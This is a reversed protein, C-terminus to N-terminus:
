SLVVPTRSSPSGATNVAALTSWYWKQDARRHLAEAHEPDESSALRQQERGAQERAKGERGCRRDERRGVVESVTSRLQLSSRSTLRPMVSSSAIPPMSTDTPM